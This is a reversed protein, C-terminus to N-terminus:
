NPVISPRVKLHTSLIATRMAAFDCHNPDLVDITGWRYKRVFVGKLDEPPGSIFPLNKVSKVSAPTAPVNVESTNESQTGANTPSELGGSSTSDTPATPRRRGPEPAILAFPLLSTVPEKSVIHASFRINAVSERDHSDPSVPRREDEAVQHLDRRSRSRSLARHRSARLKIVPRSAREYDADVEPEAAPSARGNAKTPTTDEATPADENEGNSEKKMNMLGAEVRAQGAIGEPRTRAGAYLVNVESEDTRIQEASVGIPKM